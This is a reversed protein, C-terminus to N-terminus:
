KRRYEMTKTQIAFIKDAKKYIFTVLLFPRNNEINCLYRQQAVKVQKSIISVTVLVQKHINRFYILRSPRFRYRGIVLVAFNSFALRRRVLIRKKIYM